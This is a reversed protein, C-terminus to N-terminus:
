IDFPSVQLEIILILPYFLHGPSSHKIHHQEYDLVNELHQTALTHPLAYVIHLQPNTTLAHLLALCLKLEFNGWDRSRQYPFADTTSVKLSM